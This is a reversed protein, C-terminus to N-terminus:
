THFHNQFCQSGVIWIKIQNSFPSFPLIIAIRVENCRQVNYDDPVPLNVDDIFVKLKKKDKAGYVFGPTVFLVMLRGLRSRLLPPFYVLDLRKVKNKFPFLKDFFLTPSTLFLPPAQWFFPLPKVFFPLPKVFHCPLLQNTRINKYLLYMINLFHYKKKLYTTPGPRRGGGGGTTIHQLDIYM